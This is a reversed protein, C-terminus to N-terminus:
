HIILFYCTGFQFYENREDLGVYFNSDKKKGIIFTETNNDTLTHKIENNKNTMMMM